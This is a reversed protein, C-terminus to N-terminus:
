QLGGFDDVGAKRSRKTKPEAAPEEAPEPAAAGDDLKGGVLWSTKGTVVQGPTDKIGKEVEDIQNSLGLIKNRQNDTGMIGNCVPCQITKIFKRAIKSGCMRCGLFASAASTFSKMLADSAKLLKEELKAKEKELKAIGTKKASGKLKMVLVRGSPSAEIQARAEEESAFEKDPFHTLYGTFKWWDNEPKEHDRVENFWEEPDQTIVASVIRSM